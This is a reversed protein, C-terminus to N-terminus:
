YRQRFSNAQGNDEWRPRPWTTIPHSDHRRFCLLRHRFPLRLDDADGRLHLANVAQDMLSASVFIGDQDSPFLTGAFGLRRM